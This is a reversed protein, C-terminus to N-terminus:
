RAREGRLPTVQADLYAAIARDDALEPEPTPAAFGHKALAARLHSQPLPRQRDVIRHPHAVAFFLGDQEVIAKPHIDALIAVVRFGM